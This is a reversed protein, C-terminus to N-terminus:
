GEVDVEVRGELAEKVVRAGEEVVRKPVRLDVKVEADKGEGNVAEGEATNGGEFRGMGNSVKEEERSEFGEGGGKMEDVVVSM